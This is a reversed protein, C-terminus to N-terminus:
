CACEESAGKAEEKKEGEKKEEKKEETSKKEEGKVEKELKKLEEELEKEIEEISIPKPPPTTALTWGIWGVIAAVALVAIFITAKALAIDFNQIDVYKEILWPAFLGVLYFLVVIIAGVLMLAGIVQDKSM